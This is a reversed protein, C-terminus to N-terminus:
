SIDRHTVRKAHNISKTVLYKNITFSQANNGLFLYHRMEFESRNISDM